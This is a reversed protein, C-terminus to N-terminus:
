TSLKVLCIHSPRTSANLIYAMCLLIWRTFLNITELSSRHTFMTMDIVTHKAGPFFVFGRTSLIVSALYLEAKNAGQRINALGSALIVKAGYCLFNRGQPNAAINEQAPYM